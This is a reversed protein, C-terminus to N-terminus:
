KQLKKCKHQHLCTGHLGKQCVSCMTRSRKRGAGKPDSCVTCEREKKDPIQIITISSSPGPPTDRIELADKALGDVVQTTFKYRTMVRRPARQSYIIYSNVVMRSILTFAVKKWYKLTRREDLYCYLMMDSCDVGGMYKNYQLIVDPKRVEIPGEAGRRRTQIVRSTAKSKTSIMIVPNKQNKKERFSCALLNGQRSYASEGPQLQTKVLAPLGKRNRRITGTLYTRASFLERALGISSFFNDVFVHYGKRLLNAMNLLKIVVKHGLGLGGEDDAAGRKGKYVFFAVVYATVSECLVWLKIGWQHHHKNPMYQILQTKNKTGILSEDVSLEQRPKYYYKFRDNAVEVLPAFRACPDYGPQGPTPLPTRVFHFFKLILQFRHRGMVDHYWSCHQSRTKSWYAFITPKRCLGMNLIIAIFAKMETVTVDKWHRVMSKHKLTALKEDIFKKAYNNTQTVLTNLLEITFFLLFYDVPHQCNDPINQPGSNQNFVLDDEGEQEEPYVRMWPNANVIEDDEEGPNELDLDVQSDDESQVSDSDSSIDSDDPEHESGSDTYEDESSM